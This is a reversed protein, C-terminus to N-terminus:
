FTQSTCKEGDWCKGEGCDCIKVGHSNEPSCGCAGILCNNPFDASSLCCLGTSVAGGSDICAQGVDSVPETTGKPMLFFALIILVAVVAIALITKRNTKM